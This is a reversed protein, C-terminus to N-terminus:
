YDLGLENLATKIELIKPSSVALSKSVIRGNKRTLTSDFYTPWIVIRNQQRM